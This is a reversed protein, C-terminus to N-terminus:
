ISPLANHLTIYKSRKVSKLFSSNFKVILKVIPFWRNTPRNTIVQWSSSHVNNIHSDDNVFSLHYFTIYKIIPCEM